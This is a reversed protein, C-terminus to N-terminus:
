SHQNEISSQLHNCTTNIESIHEAVETNEKRAFNLGDFLRPLGKFGNLKVTHLKIESQMDLFKARQTSNSYEERERRNGRERSRNPPSTSNQNFQPNIPNKKKNRLKIKTPDISM